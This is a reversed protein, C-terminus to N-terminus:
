ATRRVSRRLDVPDWRSMIEDIKAGRRRGMFPRIAEMVEYAPIGTVVFTYIPRRGLRNSTSISGAGILATAKMVVDLDAMALSIRPNGRPVSKALMFCGEGELLGALWTIRAPDVLALPTM